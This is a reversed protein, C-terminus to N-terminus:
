TVEVGGTRNAPEVQVGGDRSRRFKLDVSGQGVKIRRFELEGVNDPLVPRIVRLRCNFADPVLGLLSALLFPVSGAAWAQPHCAIPYRVPVSFQKRSFGGFVEPLRYHEFYRAAQLIGDLVRLAERDFGYRHFGAAIVSNDHPWVTGLHYGIPNARREKNSLTRIGWGSFMDEAILNRV